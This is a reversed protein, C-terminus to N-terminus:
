GKTRIAPSSDVAPITQVTARVSELLEILAPVRLYASPGSVSLVFRGEDTAVPITLSISDQRQYDLLPLADARLSRRAYELCEEESEPVSETPREWGYRLRSRGLIRLAEKRPRDLLLRLAVSSLHLPYHGVQLISTEVGARARVFYILQDDHLGALFFSMEAHDAALRELPLRAREVIPFHATANGGLTVAGYDLAFSHYDPKRVYGARALGALLRSATSPHTGLVRAIATATMPGGSEALLRLINLGVTFSKSGDPGRELRKAM